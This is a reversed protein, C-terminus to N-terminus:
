LRLTTDPEDDNESDDNRLVKQRTNLTNEVLPHQWKEFLQDATPAFEIIRRM